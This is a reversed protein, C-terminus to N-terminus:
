LFMHSLEMQEHIMTYTKNQLSRKNIVKDTPNPNEETTKKCVKLKTWMQKTSTQKCFYVGGKESM